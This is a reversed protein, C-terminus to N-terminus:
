RARPSARRARATGRAAPERVSAGLQPTPAAALLTDLRGVRDGLMQAMVGTVDVGHRQALLTIDLAIQSVAIEAIAATESVVARDSRNNETAGLLSLRDDAVVVLRHAWFAELDAERLGYGFHLGALGEPLRAHSFLVVFVGRRQAATLAPALKSLERPWGSLVLRRRAATVIRTAEDVIRDYGAVTFADPADPSVDLRAIAERLATTAGDFRRRLLGELAKPPTASFREPPGADRRAVGQVVLGRLVSYVASRPVGADRSVEYGTSPGARLLAVYARAENLKFGVAGLVEILRDDAM